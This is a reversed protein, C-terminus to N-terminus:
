TGSRSIVVIRDYRRAARFDSAPFADTEGGGAAERLAAYAIAMFWSTGSGLVAVREGAGPLADGLRPLLGLATAWSEPQRRIEHVAHPQRESMSPVRRHSCIEHPRHARRAASRASPPQARGSRETWAS